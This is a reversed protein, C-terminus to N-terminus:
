LLWRHGEISIGDQNDLGLHKRPSGAADDTEKPPPLDDAFPSGLHQLVESPALAQGWGTAEALLAELTPRQQTHTLARRLERWRWESRNAAPDDAPTDVLLRHDQLEDLLARLALSGRVTHLGRHDRLVRAARGRAQSRARPAVPRLLAGGGPAPGGGWRGLGRALRGARLGRTPRHGRAGPRPAPRATGQPV